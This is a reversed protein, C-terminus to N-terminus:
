RNLKNTSSSPVNDLSSILDKKLTGLQDGDPLTNIREYMERLSKTNEMDETFQDLKISIGKDDSGSFMTLSVKKDSPSLEKFTSNVIAIILQKIAEIQVNSQFNFVEKYYEFEKEDRPGSAAFRLIEVLLEHPLLNLFSPSKIDHLFHFLSSLSEPRNKEANNRKLTEDLLSATEDSVMSIDYKVELLSTSQALENISYDGIHNFRIDISELTPHLAFCSLTSIGSYQLYISRLNPLTTLEIAHEDLADNFSFDLHEISTIRAVAKCFDVDPIGQYLNSLNLRKLNINNESVVKALNNIDETSIDMKSLDLVEIKHNAKLRELLENFSGTNTRM